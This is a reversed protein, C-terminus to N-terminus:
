HSLGLKVGMLVVPCIITRYIKIKTNKFILSSSLLDQVWHYCANGSNLRSKIEEQIYNRNTVATGLYKFQEVRESSKNDLKINHNQGANRDGSM